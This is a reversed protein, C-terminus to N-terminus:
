LQAPSPPFPSPFPPNLPFTLLSVRFLCFIWFYYFCLGIAENQCRTWDRQINDPAAAHEACLGYSSWRIKGSKGGPASPSDCDPHLCPSNQLCTGCFPASEEGAVTRKRRRASKCLPFYTTSIHSMSMQVPCTAMITDDDHLGWWWWRSMTISM